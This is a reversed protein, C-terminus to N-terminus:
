KKGNGVVTNKLGDKTNLWLYNFFSKTKDREVKIDGYRYGNEDTKSGDNTFINVITTLTKNIGLQDEDLISFKFDEYKMKMKGKSTDNNGYITFYMEHIEGLARVNAQAELFPNITVAELDKLVASANFSGAIDSSNFDWKFQLPAKDMLKTTAEIVTKKTTTNSINKITADLNNFSISVPDIDKDVRESYFINSNELNFTKIDLQFPLKKLQAGYLLKKATDDTILKNRFIHLESNNFKFNNASVKFNNKVTKLTLNTSTGNLVKFDVYDREIILRKSLEEKSYKSKISFNEFNLANNKYSLNALKLEEFRSLDLYLDALSLNLDKYNFPIKNKLLLTDTKFNFLEFSVDKASFKIKDSDKKFVIVDGNKVNIADTNLQKNKFLSWYAVDKIQLTKIHIEAETKKTDLNLSKLKLNNFDINGLLINLDLDDYTLELNKPTKKSIIDSIMHKGYFHLGLLAILLFCVVGILIQALKNKFFSKKTNKNLATKM